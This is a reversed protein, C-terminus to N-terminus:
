PEPTFADGIRHAERAARRELHSVALFGSLAAVMGAMTPLTARAIGRALADAHDAGALALAQFVEIMGTVTGLIGLLPCIAVLARIAPLSRRLELRLRSVLERRVHEAYWSSREPRARWEALARATEAAWPAGYFRWREVILTWMVATVVVVADLVWGGSELFGRLAQAQESLVAPM